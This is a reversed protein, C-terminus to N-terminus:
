SIKELYVTLDDIEFSYKGIMEDIPMLPSYTVQLGRNGKNIHISYQKGSYIAPVQLRLPNEYICVKKEFMERLAVPINIQVCSNVSRSRMPVINVHNVKAPM